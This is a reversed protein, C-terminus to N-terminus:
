DSIRDASSSGNRSCCGATVALCVAALLWPRWPPSGRARGSRTAKGYRLDRADPDAGGLIPVAGMWPKPEFSQFSLMLGPIMPLLLLLSLQTQAEKFSRAFLALLMQLAPALLALPLLLALFRLADRGSLAM